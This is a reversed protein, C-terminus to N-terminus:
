RCAFHLASDHTQSNISNVLDNEILQLLIVTKRSGSQAALLFPTNGNWDRQELLLGFTEVDTSDKIVQIIDHKGDKSARHLVNQGQYDTINIRKMKGTCTFSIIVTTKCILNTGILIEVVKRNGFTAAVHLPISGHVDQCEANSQKEM